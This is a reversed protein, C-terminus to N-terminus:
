AVPVPVAVSSLVQDIVDINSMGRARVEGRVIVRHGLITTAMAKVDDPSVFDRGTM